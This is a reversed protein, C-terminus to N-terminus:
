RMEQDKGGEIGREYELIFPFSKTYNDPIVRQYLIIGEYKLYVTKVAFNNSELFSALGIIINKDVIFYPENYVASEYNVYLIERTMVPFLIAEYKEKPCKYQITFTNLHPNICLRYNEFFIEFERSYFSLQSFDTCSGKLKNTIRPHNENIFRRYEREIQFQGSQNFIFKREMSKDILNFSAEFKIIVYNILRRDTMMYPNNINSANYFLGDNQSMTFKHSAYASLLKQGLPTLKPTFIAFGLIERVTLSFKSLYKM